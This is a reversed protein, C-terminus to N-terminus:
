PRVAVVALLAQAAMALAYRAGVDRLNSRLTPMFPAIRMRDDALVESQNPLGKLM